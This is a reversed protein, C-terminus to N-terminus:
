SGLKVVMAVGSPTSSPVPTNLLRPLGRTGIVWVLSGDPRGVAIEVDRATATACAPLPVPTAALVGAVQAKVGPLLGVPRIM